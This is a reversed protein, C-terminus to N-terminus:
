QRVKGLVPEIDAAGATNAEDLERACRGDKDDPCVLHGDANMTLDSRHWQTGCVDCMEQWNRRPGNYHRGITRM